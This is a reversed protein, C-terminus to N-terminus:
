QISADSARGTEWAVSRSFSAPTKQVSRNHVGTHIAVCLCMAEIFVVIMHYRASATFSGFDGRTLFLVYQARDYLLELERPLADGRRGGEEECFRKKLSIFFVYGGEEGWFISVM